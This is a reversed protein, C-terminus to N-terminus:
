RVNPLSLFVRFLLIISELCSSGEVFVLISVLSKLVPFDTLFLTFSSEREYRVEWGLLAGATLVELDLDHEGLLEQHLFFQECSVSLLSFTPNM